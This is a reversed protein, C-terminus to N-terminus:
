APPPDPASEGARDAGEPPPITPTANTHYANPQEKSDREWYPQEEPHAAYYAEATARFRARQRVVVVEMMEGLMKETARRDREFLCIMLEFRFGGMPPNARLRQIAVDLEAVRHEEEPTLERDTM